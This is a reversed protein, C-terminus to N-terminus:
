VVPSVKSTGMGLMRIDWGLWCGLLNSYEVSSYGQLSCHFAKEFCVHFEDLSITQGGQMQSVKETKYSSVTLVM